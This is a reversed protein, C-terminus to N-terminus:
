NDWNPVNDGEGPYCRVTSGGDEGLEDENTASASATESESSTESVTSTPPTTTESDDDDDGGCAELTLSAALVAAVAFPKRFSM